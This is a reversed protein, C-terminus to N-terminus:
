NTLKNFIDLKQEVNKKQFVISLLYFQFGVRTALLFLFNHVYLLFLFDNQTNVRSISVIFFRFNERLLEKLAYKLIHQLCKSSMCNILLKALLVLCLGRQWPNPRILGNQSVPERVWWNQSYEISVWMKVSFPLLVSYM